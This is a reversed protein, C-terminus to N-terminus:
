AAKEAFQVIQLFGRPTRALAEIAIGQQFEVVGRDSEVTQRVIEIGHVFGAHPIQEPCRQRQDLPQTIENEDAQGQQQPGRSHHGRQQIPVHHLRQAGLEDLAFRQEGLAFFEGGQAREGGPHGM